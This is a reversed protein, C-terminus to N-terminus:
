FPIVARQTRCVLRVATLRALPPLVWVSPGFTSFGHRDRDASCLYPPTLLGAGGRGSFPSTTHWFRTDSRRPPLPSPKPPRISERVMNLLTTRLPAFNNFISHSLKRSAFAVEFSNKPSVDALRRRDPPRRYGYNRTNSPAAQVHHEALRPRM